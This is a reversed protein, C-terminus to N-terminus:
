TAGGTAATATTGTNDEDGDPFAVIPARSGLAKLAKLFPGHVYSGEDGGRGHLFM